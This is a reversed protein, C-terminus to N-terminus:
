VEKGAILANAAQERKIRKRHKWLLRLGGFAMTLGFKCLYWVRITVSLYGDVAPADVSFDVDLRVDAHKRRPLGLANVGASVYGYLMAADYPDAAGSIFYLRLRHLRFRLKKVSRVVLDLAAKIEEWDFNFNRSKKPPRVETEPPKKKKKGAKRERAAKGPKGPYLWLVKPGIRVGASAQGAEYGADIGVPLLMLLVFLGLIVALIKM